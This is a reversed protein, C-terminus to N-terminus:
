ELIYFSKKEEEGLRRTTQGAGVEAHEVEARVGVEDDVDEWDVGLAPPNHILVM